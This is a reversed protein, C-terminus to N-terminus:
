NMMIFINVFITFIQGFDGQNITCENQDLIKAYSVWTIYIDEKIFTNCKSRHCNTWHYVRINFRVGVRVRVRIRIKIRVRGGVIFGIM